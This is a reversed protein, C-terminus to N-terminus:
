KQVMTATEAVDSVAPFTSFEGNALADENYSKGAAVELQFSVQEV